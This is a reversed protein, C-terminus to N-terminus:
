PTAAAPLAEGIAWVQTVCNQWQYRFFWALPSGHTGRISMVDPLLPMIASDFEQLPRAKFQTLIKRAWYDMLVTADANLSSNAYLSSLILVDGPQLSDCNVETVDRGAWFATKVIPITDNYHENSVLRRVARGHAM